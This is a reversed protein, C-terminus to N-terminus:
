FTAKQHYNHIIKILEPISKVRELYENYNHTTYGQLFTKAILSVVGTQKQSKTTGLDRYQADPVVHQSLNVVTAGTKLSVGVNEIFLTTEFVILDGFVQYIGTM